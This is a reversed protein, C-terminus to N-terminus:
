KHKAKWKEGRSAGLMDVFRKMHRPELPHKHDHAIANFRKDEAGSDMTTYDGMLGGSRFGAGSYWM